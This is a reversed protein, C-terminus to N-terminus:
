LKQLRFNHMFFLKIFRITFLIYNIRFKIHTNLIYFIHLRITLNEFYITMSIKKTPIIVM